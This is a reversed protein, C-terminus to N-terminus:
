MIRLEKTKKNKNNKKIKNNKIKKFNVSKEQQDNQGPKKLIGKVQLPVPRSM